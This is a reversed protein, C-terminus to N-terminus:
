DSSLIPLTWSVTSGHPQVRVRLGPQHGAASKLLILRRHEVSMDTIACLIKKFMNARACKCTMKERWSVVNQSTRSKSNNPHTHTNHFCIQTRWTKPTPETKRLQSITLTRSLHVVTSKPFWKPTPREHRPNCSLNSLAHSINGHRAPLVDFLHWIIRKSIAILLHSQQLFISTLSIYSEDAVFVNPITPPM